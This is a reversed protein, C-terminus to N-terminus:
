IFKQKIFTIRSHKMIKGVYPYCKKNTPLSMSLTKVSSPLNMADYKKHINIITLVKIGNPLYNTNCNDIILNHVKGLASFNKIKNCGSLNLIHNNMQKAVNKIRICNKLNLTHINELGTIDSIRENCSLDLSYVNKLIKTNLKLVHLYECSYFLFDFEGKDNKGYLKHKFFLGGDIVVEETLRTLNLSIKKNLVYLLFNVICRTIKNEYYFESSERGLSVIDDDIM